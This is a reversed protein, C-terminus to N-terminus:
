RSFFFFFFFLSQLTINGPHLNSTASCFLHTQSFTLSIASVLIAIGLTSDFKPWPGGAEYNACIPNSSGWLKCQLLLLLLHHFVNFIVRMTEVEFIVHFWVQIIETNNVNFYIREASIESLSSLLLSNGWNLQFKACPGPSVKILYNKKAVFCM